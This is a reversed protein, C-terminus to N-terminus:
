EKIARKQVHAEEGPTTDSLTERVVEIVDKGEPKLTSRFQALADEAQEKTHGYKAQLLGPLKDLNENVTDLDKDTLAGWRQKVADKLQKLKDQITDDSM